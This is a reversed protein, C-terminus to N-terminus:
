NDIVNSPGVRSDSNVRSYRLNCGLTVSSAGLGDSTPYTM